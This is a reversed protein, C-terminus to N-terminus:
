ELMMKRNVIVDSGGVSPPLFPQLIKAACSAIKM